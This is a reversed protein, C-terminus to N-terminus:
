WALHFDVDTASLVHATVTGEGYGYHALVGEFVGLLFSEPYLPFDRVSVDADRAGIRVAEYRGATLSVEFGRGAIRLVTPLDNGLSAFIVKGVMTSLLTPYMIWGIRRLAEPRRQTPYLRQASELLLEHAVELPYDGFDRYNTAITLHQGNNALEKIVARLYFGKVTIGATTSGRKALRGAPVDNHSPPSSHMLSTFPQM